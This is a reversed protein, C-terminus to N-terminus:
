ASELAQVRAELTEIKTIAEKLAATLLPVLKSQDIGQPDIKSEEKVDGINKGEPLSDNATYLVEKTMADKEGSIAEPVIDSVEHALFGDVLTKDTNSKWYFKRPKLQKLKEIGDTKDVIGDKLRYDSSTVYSIADNTGDRKIQGILTGSREFGIYRAHSAGDKDNFYQGNESNGGFEANIKSNSSVDAEVIIRNVVTFIGDSSINMKETEAGGTYRNFSLPGGGSDAHFSWYDTANNQELKLQHVNSAPKVTLTSGDYTLNSEGQMANAGTVTVVTNNTSGTLTAGFGSSSAGSALTVTDGSSGVELSTGSAPTIKDVKLESTM